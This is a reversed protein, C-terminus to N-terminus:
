SCFLIIERQQPIEQSHAVLDESSIRVAGPILPREEALGSRLDVILLDEGATLRQQLESPTIRAMRLRRLFRRRQTWKWGIWAAFFAGVVLFLNSRMQSAYGLMTELQESFLYGVAIYAGSWILAGASDFLAFQVYSRRSHGALPAAVANLGPIFKSVLLSSMGYKLFANETQRVCSDPELSLRCLLRLVQQGRHRGLEFWITDAILAAILCCLIAPAVQLRGTRTLAGAALLLPVSPLPIASQEALVWLFLLAYGHREIFGITHLIELHDPV